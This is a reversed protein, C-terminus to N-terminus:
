QEAEWQRYLGADMPNRLTKAYLSSAIDTSQAPLDLRQFHPTGSSHQSSSPHTSNLLSLSNVLNLPQFM